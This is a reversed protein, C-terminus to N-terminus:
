YFSISTYIPIFQEFFNSLFNPAVCYGLEVTTLVVMYQLIMLLRLKFFNAIKSWFNRM